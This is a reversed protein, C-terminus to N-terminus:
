EKSAKGRSAPGTKALRTARERERLLQLTLGTLQAQLTTVQTELQVLRTQLDADPLAALSIQSQTEVPMSSADSADADQHLVRGHLRALTQVQEGTLCKVRADTPHAHLSMQAQTLWQRLTKSDITLLRCCDIISLSTM